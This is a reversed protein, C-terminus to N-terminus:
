EDVIKLRIMEDRQTLQPYHKFVQYRAVGAVFGAALTLLIFIGTAFIANTVLDMYTIVQRRQMEPERKKEYIWKLTPAYDVKALVQQAEQEPGFFLSIIVGARKMYVGQASFYGQLANQLKVFYHSALATTPYGILFLSHNGPAYRAATVEIDDQFGLQGALEKPFQPHLRFSAEGVYFRISDRVLNEQPLHVVTLPYINILPLARILASALNKLHPQSWGNVHFFYSGRWFVLHGEHYLNDVPLELRQGSLHWTSFLGFAGPPDLMEFVEMGLSENDAADASSDQPVRDVKWRSYSLLTYEGLVEPTWPGLRRGPKPGSVEEIM